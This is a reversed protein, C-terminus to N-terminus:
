KLIGEIGGSNPDIINVKVKKFFDKYKIKKGNPMKIQRQEFDDKIKIKNNNKIKLNGTYQEIFFKQTRCNDCLGDKLVLTKDKKIRKKPICLPKKKCKGLLYDHKCFLTIVGYSDLTCKERVTLDKILPENLNYQQISEQAVNKRGQSYRMNLKLIGNKKAKIKEIEKQKITLNEKKKLQNQNKNQNQGLNEQLKMVLNEEQKLQNQNQNSSSSSDSSNSSNESSNLNIYFFCIFILKFFKKFFVVM